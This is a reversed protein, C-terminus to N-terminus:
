GENRLAQTPRLRALLLAPALGSVAGVVLLAGVGLLLTQDAVAFNPIMTGLSGRIGAEMGKTLGVGLAVGLTTLLAAEGLMSRAIAGDSFGLAKLIGTEAVRQRGALLLANIVAFFVAVVIAGGIMSVFMPVNGMMSVFGAQFAGETTTTTRQPGNTFLGDVAAIVKASDAGAALNIAYAGCGDPGSALEADLSETLYDFRFWMTMGDVNSKLPEYLGVVNFDWAAGDQLQFITGLIPVTDGVKWGYKRALDGGILCGRRDASLAEMAAARAAAGTVGGPGEVIEMEREYMPFFSDPKVGFQAFFNEPSQYFGGFWQFPTVDEVGDVGRIQAEYARPLDVYLSVSSQLFLRASSAQTVASNLSTLLSILFCLLFFALGMAFVTLGSRIWHVRPHRFSLIWPTASM